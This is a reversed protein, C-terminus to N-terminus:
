MGDNYKSERAQTIKILWLFSERKQAKIIVHTACVEPFNRGVPLKYGNLKIRKVAIIDADEFAPPKAFIKLNFFGCTAISTDMDSVGCGLPPTDSGHMQSTTLSLNVSTTPNGDVIVKKTEM